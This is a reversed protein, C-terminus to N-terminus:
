TLRNDDLWMGLAQRQQLFIARDDANWDAFWSSADPALERQVQMM